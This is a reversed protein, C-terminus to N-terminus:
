DASSPLDVAVAHDLAHGLAHDLVHRECAWRRGGRTHLGAQWRDVLSLQAPSVPVCSQSM